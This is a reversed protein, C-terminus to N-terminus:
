YSINEALLKITILYNGPALITRVGAGAHKHKSFLFIQPKGQATYILDVYVPTDPYINRSNDTNENAWHLFFPTGSIFVRENPFVREIKEVRVDANQIPTKGTNCIGIRFFWSHGGTTANYRYHCYNNEPETSLLYEFRIEPKPRKRWNLIKQIWYIPNILNILFEM